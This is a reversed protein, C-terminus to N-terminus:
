GTKKISRHRLKNRKSSLPFMSPMVVNETNNFKEDKKRAYTCNKNYKRCAGEWFLNQTPIWESYVTADQPVYAFLSFFKRIHLKQQVKAASKLLDNIKLHLFNYNFPSETGITEPLPGAILTFITHYKHSFLAIITRYDHSVLSYM